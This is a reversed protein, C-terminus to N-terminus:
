DDTPPEDEPSLAAIKRRALMDSGIMSEYEALHRSAEEVLGLKMSAYSRVFHVWPDDDLEASQLTELADEDRGLDCLCEAKIAANRSAPLDSEMLTPLLENLVEEHRGLCRLARLRALPLAALLEPQESAMARMQESDFMRLNREWEGLWRTLYCYLIPFSQM